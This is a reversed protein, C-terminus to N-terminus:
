LQDSQAGCLWRLWLSTSFLLSLSVFVNLRMM